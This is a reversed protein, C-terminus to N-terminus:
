WREQGAQALMQEEVVAAQRMLTDATNVMRSCVARLNASHGTVAGRFRDAAEGVFTMSAVSADVTAAIGTLTDARLRLQAAAARMSAPDGTVLTM